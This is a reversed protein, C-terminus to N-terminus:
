AYHLLLAGVCLYFFYSSMWIRRMSPSMLSSYMFKMSPPFRRQNILMLLILMTNNRNKRKRRLALQKLIAKKSVINAFSTRIPKGNATPTSPKKLTQPLLLIRTGKRDKELLLAVMNDFKTPALRLVELTNEFYSVGEMSKM